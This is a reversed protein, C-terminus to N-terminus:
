IRRTYIGTAHGLGGLYNLRYLDKHRLSEMVIHVRLNAFGSTM